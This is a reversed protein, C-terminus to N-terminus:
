LSYQKHYRSKPEIDQGSDHLDKDRKRCEKCMPCECNKNKSIMDHILKKPSKM